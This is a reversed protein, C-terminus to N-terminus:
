EPPNVGFDFLRNASAAGPMFAGTTGASIFAYEGPKLPANPVIKYVGPGIKTSTFPVNAKDETGSSAGFVNGKMVVTERTDGKVELRLLTFENPTSTGSGAHSLGAGKEEFYFYFVVGPDSFRVNARPNRVVAKWKMKAIGYTMASKFVGGSKGQTYVTPELLIMKKGSAKETYAYIGSEHPSNPDNPDPPPPAEKPPDAPPPPVSKPTMMAKVINASVGSNNLEVLAPTSLDFSTKSTQIKTIIVEEPLKAEVMKIVDANGLTDSAKAAPHVAPAIPQPPTVPGPPAGAQQAFTPGVVVVVVTVMLCITRLRM